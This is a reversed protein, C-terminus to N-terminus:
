YRYRHPRLKRRADRLDNSVQLLKKSLLCYDMSGKQERSQKLRLTIRKLGLQLYENVEGEEPQESKSQRMLKVKLMFKLGKKPLGQELLRQMLQQFVPLQDLEDPDPEVEFGLQFGLDLDLKGPGSEERWEELQRSVCGWQKM